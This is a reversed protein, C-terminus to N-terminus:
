LMRVDEYLDTTMLKQVNEVKQRRIEDLIDNETRSPEQHPQSGARKISERAAIENKLRTKMKELKKQREVAVKEEELKTSIRKFNHIMVGVFINRFIFAQDINFLYRRDV